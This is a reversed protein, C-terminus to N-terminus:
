KQKVYRRSLHRKTQDPFSQRMEAHQDCRVTGPPENDRRQCGRHDEDGIERCQGSSRPGYAEASFIARDGWRNRVHDGKDGVSKRKCGITAPEKSPRHLYYGIRARKYMLQGPLLLKKPLMGNRILTPNSAM